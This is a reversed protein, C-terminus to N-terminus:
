EVPGKEYFSLIRKADALIKQVEATRNIEAIALAIDVSRILLDQRSQGETLPEWQEPM